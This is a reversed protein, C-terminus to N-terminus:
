KLASPLPPNRMYGLYQGPADPNERLNSMNTLGLPDVERERGGVEGLGGSMLPEEFGVGGGNKKKAAPAELM